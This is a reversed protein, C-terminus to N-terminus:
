KGHWAYRTITGEGNVWFTRTSSLNRAVAPTTPSAPLIVTRQTAWTMIRGPPNDLVQSPPGWAAIVDNVDHGVWSAMMKDNDVCGGL